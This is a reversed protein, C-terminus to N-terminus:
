RARSPEILGKAVFDKLTSTVDEELDEGEAPFVDAVASAIEGLTRTGDCLDLFVAASVNLLSTRDTVPDYVVFDDDVHRYILDDRSRPREPLKMEHLKKEDWGRGLPPELAAPAVRADLQTAGAAAIVRALFFVKDRWRGMELLYFLPAEMEMRRRSAELRRAADLRWVMAFLKRRLASPRLAESISPDVRAGAMDVAMELAHYCVARCRLREVLRYFAGVDLHPRDRDMAWRVDHLLRLVTFGHQNAHLLLHLLMAEPGPVRFSARGVRLERTNAWVWREEPAAPGVNVLRFHLEVPRRGRACFRLQRRYHGRSLAESPTRPLPGPARWGAARLAAVTEVYDEERIGLDIDSVPRAGPDPYASFAVWPGKFSLAEIGRAALAEQLVALDNGLAENRLLHHLYAGRLRDGLPPPLDVRDDAAVAHRWMWWCLADVQHRAALDSAKVGDPRRRLAHRVGEADATALATVLLAEPAPPAAQPRM